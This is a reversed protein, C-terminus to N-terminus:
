LIINNHTIMNSEIKKVCKFNISKHDITIDKQLCLLIHDNLRVCTNGM